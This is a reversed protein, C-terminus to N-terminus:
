RPLRDLARRARREAEPHGSDIALQYAARAGAVDDQQDLLSGLNLAALPTVDAHGSDIARQYASRAAAVDRQGELMIGLNFAAKPVEADDGDDIAREYAARAAASDGRDELLAGLRFSAGGHARQEARRFAEEAGDLDGSDWLLEGLYVASEDDGREDARRWAAEAGSLEGRKALLAGLDRAAVAHGREDARRFAAEARDTDNRWGWLLGGLNYAAAAHGREDARRWAAEAGDYDRRHKLLLGLQFAGAALGREDARRFAAEAGVLDGQNALLLGLTLAGNADGREDARGYAAMARHYDGRGFLLEGLYFAGAALGREDARSFAAEAGDFEGRELQLEGLRLTAAAVGREDASRMAAEAEDLNGRQRLMIALNYAGIPDGREDARRFAAEAREPEDTDAAAIGVSSLEDDAAHREIIADWIVGPIPRREREFRVAYDYPQYPDQGVLLAVHSYLPRTAWKVGEEFRGPLDPGHLYPRYLERLAAEPVPRFLGARRWDITARAVALGEPCEAADRLKERIRTAVIMFEGIGAQAVQETVNPAYDPNAALARREEASLWPTLELTRRARLLERLPDALDATAGERGKGGEAGVVLVPQGWAEFGALTRRSLGSDDSRVFREVDDLWIVCPGGRLERPPGTSALEALAAADAPQLLWAQPVAAGVAELLTRSKGAKSAGSLVILEVGDRGAADKLRARLAEDIDREIYPAHSRGGLGAAELAEPAEVEVGLEYVGEAAVREAVREPRPGWLADHAERREARVQLVGLALALLAGVAGVVAFVIGLWTPGGAAKVAGGAAVLAAFGLASVKATQGIAAGSDFWGKM